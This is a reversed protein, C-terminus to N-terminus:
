HSMCTPCMPFKGANAFNVYSAEEDAPSAMPRTLIPNVPLAERDVVVGDKLITHITRYNESALLPNKDLILMDAIKGPELTGLDRDKGYAEAINRTAAQLMRMPSCGKEEMAKFWFFHGQRLDMYCDVDLGMWASWTPDSEVEPAFLSADNALLLTADSRIFNRVNTDAARMLTHGLDAGHSTMGFFWDLRRQTFPFLVAGTNRKVFLEITSEPIPTPGTINAHTILDCGAEVAIRLGEVSSCHAQATISARHAEEVMAEQVRPSFQIFAGQGTHDNSAYKIFDIGKGIYARVEQAVQEPTLWMLHRGVNEVWIANIRKALAGSAVEAAKPFFDASCPGDLGIINGACFIRSGPVQGANIADRSNMLARRPGWTDFVTTLGNKLAVQAAEIILDEFRDMHRVLNELRVDCLLHVNANMLGPIVYKGRADIM